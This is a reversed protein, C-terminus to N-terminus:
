ARLQRYEFGPAFVVTEFTAKAQRHPKDFYFNNWEQMLYNKVNNFIGAMKKKKLKRFDSIRTLTQQTFETMSDNFGSFKLTVADKSLIFKLGLNAVKAM